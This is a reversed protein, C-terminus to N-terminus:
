STELWLGRLESPSVGHELRLGGVDLRITVHTDSPGSFQRFTLLRCIAERHSM